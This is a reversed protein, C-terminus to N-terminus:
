QNARQDHSWDIVCHVAGGRFPTVSGDQDKILCEGWIFSPTLTLYVYLLLMVLYTVVRVWVPLSAFKGVLLSEVAQAKALM